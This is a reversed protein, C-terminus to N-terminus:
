GFRMQDKFIQYQKSYKKNEIMNRQSKKSYILIDDKELSKYKM